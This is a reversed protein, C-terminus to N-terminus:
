RLLPGAYRCRSIRWRCRSSATPPGDAVGDPTEAKLSLGDFLDLGAVSIRFDSPRRVRPTLMMEHGDHRADPIRRAYRVTSASSCRSAWMESGIESEMM